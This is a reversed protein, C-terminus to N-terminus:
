FGQSGPPPQPADEPAAPNPNPGPWNSYGPGTRQPSYTAGVVSTATTRRRPPAARQAAPDVMWRTQTKGSTPDTLGIKRFIRNTVLTHRVTSRYSGGETHLQMCIPHLITMVLQRQINAILPARRIGFSLMPVIHLKFVLCQV